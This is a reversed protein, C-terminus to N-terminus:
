FNMLKNPKQYSLLVANFKGKFVFMSGAVAGVIGVNDILKEMDFVDKAGGMFSIQTNIKARIKKAFDIDYGSMTGDREISNFLIEGAGLLEVKKALNFINQNHKKTGNLTFINYNKTLYNKKYDFTVVVSQSGIANSIKEIIEINDLAYSSISIKEYGLAIINKAQEVTTIGGGYTLPMRSENAIVELKKLDPSKNNKSAGIDLIILEDVKKENFIKVANIPDGVYKPKKFKVTKVLGNKSILLCPVIRPRLM